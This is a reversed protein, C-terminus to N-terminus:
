STLGGNRKFLIVDVDNNNIITTVIIDNLSNKYITLRVSM